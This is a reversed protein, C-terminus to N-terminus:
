VADLIRSAEHLLLSVDSGVDAQSLKTCLHGAALLDVEATPETRVPAAAPEDDKGFLARLGGVVTEWAAGAAYALRTPPRRTTGAVLAPAAGISVIEIPDPYLTLFERVVEDPRLDIAEAYARIFARRFIGSPWHRVEDRELEELLPLHIKTQEAISALSIAKLERQCRLRTGLTERM